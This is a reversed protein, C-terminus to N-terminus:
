GGEGNAEQVKGEGQRRGGLFTELNETSIFGGAALGKLIEETSEWFAKEVEAPSPLSRLSFSLARGQSQMSLQVPADRRSLRMYVKGVVNVFLSDNKPSVGHYVKIGVGSVQKEMEEGATEPAGKVYLERGLQVVDTQFKMTLMKRFRSGADDGKPKIGSSPRAEGVEGKGLFIGRNIETLLEEVRLASHVIQNLQGALELQARPMASLEALSRNGVNTLSREAETSM